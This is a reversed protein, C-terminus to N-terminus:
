LVTLQRDGCKPCNKFKSIYDNWDNRNAVTKCRTCEVQESQLVPYGTIICPQYQAGCKKPCALSAVYIPASCQDCKRKQLVPQLDNNISQM